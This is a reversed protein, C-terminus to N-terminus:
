RIVSVLSTQESLAQVQGLFVSGQSIIIRMQAYLHLRNTVFKTDKERLLLMSLICFSETAINSYFFM